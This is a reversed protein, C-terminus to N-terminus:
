PDVVDAGAQCALCLLTSEVVGRRVFRQGLEVAFEDCEPCSWPGGAGERVSTMIAPWGSSM